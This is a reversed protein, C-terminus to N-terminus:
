QKIIKKMLTTGKTKIIIIYTGQSLFDTTISFRGNYVKKEKRFVIRGTLSRITIRALDTDGNGTHINLQNQNIPNPYVTFADSLIFAEKYIGQCDKETKVELANRNKSLDLTIESASTRINQENLTIVYAEGGNLYLTISKGSVAIATTVSFPDPETINVTFCQIFRPDEELSICITYDDSALGTIEMTDTFAITNDFGGESTIHASYTYTELATLRIKGNDMSSCTESSTTITFNDYPLTFLACGHVDVVAYPVTNPCSDYTDLVGDNDSDQDCSDGIGDKDTDAQDANAMFPCNDEVDLIGDNDDDEDCTNGLTDGDADEQDPNPRNPCNDNENLIGDEDMDMQCVNGIGDENDDEQGPNPTLPCNDNEDAIGDNDIDDDCVDGVGDGDSDAQDGNPMHPCNDNVDLIGDNDMDDDGQQGRIVFDDLVIGEFSNEESQFTDEDSHFVFRFMVNEEETLDIGGSNRNSEFDFQYRQYDLQEGVWQGGVCNKCYFSYYTPDSFDLGVSLDNYWSANPTPTSLLHWSRGKDISYQLYLLDFFNEEGRFSDLGKDLEFAMSFELVPNTISKFDYCPTVLISKKNNQYSTNLATGYVMTGSTAQDLKEGNPIGQEWQSESLNDQDYSIWRETDSEFSYVKESPAFNNAFVTFQEKQVAWELYRRPTIRLELVHKGKTPSLKPFEIDVENNPPIGGIEVESQVVGDLLFQANGKGYENNTTNKLTFSPIPNDCIIQGHNITNEIITLQDKDRPDLPIPTQWIGRGYSSVTLVGEKPNIEMDTVFVQPLGQSYDEWTTTTSNFRFVKGLRDSLFLPKDKHNAQPSIRAVFWNARPLNYSIDQFNLGGDLSRYVLGIGVGSKNGENHGLSVYLTGPDDPSVQFDSIFDNFTALLTFTRGKDKSKWVKNLSIAYLINPNNSDTRIEEIFGELRLEGTKQWQGGASIKFLVNEYAVYLTEDVAMEVPTEWLGSYPIGNEKEPPLIYLDITKGFDTSKNLLGGNQNMGWIENPKNPNIINDMGDGYHWSIWHNRNYALGGNDQTGGIIRYPDNKDVSIKYFQTIGLGFSKDVWTRGDDISEFVGGDNGAYLKGNYYNMYHVDPHFCEDLNFCDFSTRFTNGGDISRHPYITGILVINEDKPSVVIALDYWSQFWAAGNGDYSTKVFSTGSDLSKYLGDFEVGEAGNKVSIVYILEPNAPTVALMARSSTKSFGETTPAFSEGGDVSKYFDFLFTNADRALAYVVNGAGPKLRFDVIEMDLVKYWTQGADRTKYLGTDAGVWLVNSNNPHIHIENMAGFGFRDGTIEATDIHLGTADWTLGGDMSKFVGQSLTDFGDDDGTAIYIIDPNRPDIAIGSVGLQNFHDTTTIWTNGADTSKWFGGAPAGAYWVDPNHPDVAITNIRGMGTYPENTLEFPGLTEWDASSNNRLPLENKEKWLAQMEIGTPLYGDSKVFHKWQNEWRKFPKYGSGKRYKDKDSWYNEFAQRIENFSYNNKTNKGTTPNQKLEQMWPASQNFQANIATLFVFFLFFCSLRRM